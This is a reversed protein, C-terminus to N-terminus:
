AQRRLAARTRALWDAEDIVSERTGAEARIKDLHTWLSERWCIRILHRRAIGLENATPQMLGGYRRFVRLVEQRAKMPDARFLRGIWTSRNSM